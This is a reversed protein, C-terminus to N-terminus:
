HHQVDKWIDIPWRYSRKSFHRYLDKVWKKIQNDTKRTNFWILEKYIKSILCKDLTDNAFINEWITLERKMKNITEKTRCFSKLKVYDWKNIKEKIERAMPSENVFINSCSIGSIKSGINEALVKITDCNINLDKIWKSNIRSYPTLQHELKTKECTGSWNEWCWINFLNNKSWQISIDRKDFILQGYLCPNREPNETRNWQDRHRNRHWYWATKIVTAKYYLQLDPIIIGGVKNKNRLIAPIIWPWKKPEM